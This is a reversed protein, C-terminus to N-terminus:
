SPQGAFHANVRDLYSRIFVTWPQEGQLAQGDPLEISCTCRLEVEDGLQVLEFTSAYPPDAAELPRTRAFFPPRQEVVVVQTVVEAGDVAYVFTQVEGVGHGTGPETYGRVCGEALSTGSEAPRILDWVEQCTVGAIRVSDELVWTGGGVRSRWRRQLREYWGM